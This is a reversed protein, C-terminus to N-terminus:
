DQKYQPMKNNRKLCIQQLDETAASTKLKTPLPTKYAFMEGQQLSNGYQSNQDWLFFPLNQKGAAALNTCMVLTLIKKSHFGSGIV